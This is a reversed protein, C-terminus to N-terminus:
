GERELVLKAGASSFEMRLPMGKKDVWQRVEDTGDARRDLLEYAQVKAGNLEIERLGMYRSIREAWRGNHYVLERSVAGPLPMEYFFWRQSPRNIPRGKPYEATKTVTKGNATIAIELAKPGFVYRRVTANEGDQDSTVSELPRAKADYRDIQRLIYTQPGNQITMTVEFRSEGNPLTEHKLFGSGIRRGEKLLKMKVQDAKVPDAPALAAFLAVTSLILTRLM